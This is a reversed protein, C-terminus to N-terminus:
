RIVGPLPPPADVLKPSLLLPKGGRALYLHYLQWDLHAIVFHMLGAAAYVGLCFLVMGALALVIWAVFVFLLGLLIEPWILALFRSIFGFNFIQGLEQTVGALITVPRLMAMLFLNVLLVVALGGAFWIVPFLEGGSAGSGHTQVAAIQWPVLSLMAVMVVPVALLGVILAALFPWIGRELYRGFQGFDFPPYSAFDAPNRRAWFGTVHWGTLAIPGVIPIFICVLGLLLNNAWRPSKFFDTISASYNM